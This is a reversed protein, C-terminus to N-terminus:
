DKATQWKFVAIVDFVLHVLPRVLFSKVLKADSEERRLKTHARVGEEKRETGVAAATECTVLVAAAM